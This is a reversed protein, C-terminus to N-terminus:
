KLMMRLNDVLVTLNNVLGNASQTCGVYSLPTRSPFGVRLREAAGASFTRLATDTEGLWSNAEGALSQIKEEPVGNCNLARGLLADGSHIQNQIVRGEASESSFALGRGEQVTSTVTTVNNSGQVQASSNGTGKQEQHQRMLLTVEHHVSARLSTIENETWRHQLYVGFATVLGPAIVYRLAGGAAGSISQVVRSRHSSMGEGKPVLERSSGGGRGVQIRPSFWEQPVHAHLCQIWSVGKM